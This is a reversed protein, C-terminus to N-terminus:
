RGLTYVSYQETGGVKKFGAREGIVHELLPNHYLLYAARPDEALSKELNAILLRMGDEPLPNFLYVVLPGSPFPFECADACVAEIQSCRRTASKYARKNEEAARHLEEILEVGVIKRFPYESAMLLTRGKGSGIDVFTFQDFAIPLSAMMERFLGPETPQYPSHFAGLLRARWGVTGSTTNVRHEWDYEMDGYRQRRRSPTSDRLFNWLNRLLDASLM